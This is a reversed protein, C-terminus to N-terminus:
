DPNVASRKPPGPRDSDAFSVASNPAGHRPDDVLDAFVRKPAFGFSRTNEVACRDVGPVPENGERRRGLRALGGSRMERSCRLQRQDRNVGIREATRQFPLNRAAAIQKRVEVACQRECCYHPGLRQREAAISTMNKRLKRRSRGAPTARAATAACALGRLRAGGRWGPASIEAM